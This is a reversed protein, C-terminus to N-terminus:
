VVLALQTPALYNHTPIFSHIFSSSGCGHPPFPPFVCVGNVNSTPGEGAPIQPHVLYTRKDYDREGPPVQVQVKCRARAAVRSPNASKPPWTVNRFISPSTLVPEWGEASPPMGLFFPVWLRSLSHSHARPDSKPTYNHSISM